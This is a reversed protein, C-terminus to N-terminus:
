AAPMAAPPESPRGRGPSHVPWPHPQDVAFVHEHMLAISDACAARLGMDQCKLSSIGRAQVLLNGAKQAFAVQKGLRLPRACSHPALLLVLLYLGCSTFISDALHLLCSFLVLSFALHHLYIWLTESPIHRELPVTGLTFCALTHPLLNHLVHVLRVRYAGRCECALCVSSLDRHCHPSNCRTGGCEVSVRHVKKPVHSTGAVTPCKLPRTHSIPVVVSALGMKIGVSVADRGRERDRV